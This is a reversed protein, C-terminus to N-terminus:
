SQRREERMTKTLKQFEVAHKWLEEEAQKQKTGRGRRTARNLGLTGIGSADEIDVDGGHDESNTVAELSEVTALLATLNSKLNQLVQLDKQKALYAAAKREAMGKITGLDRGTKKVVEEDQKETSTLYTQRVENSM